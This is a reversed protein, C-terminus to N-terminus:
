LFIIILGILKFTIKLKLLLSIYENVPIIQNKLNSKINSKLVCNILAKGYFFNSLIFYKVRRYYSVKKIKNDTYLEDIKNHLKLIEEQSHSITSTIIEVIRSRKVSNKAFLEEVL